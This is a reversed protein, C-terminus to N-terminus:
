FLLFVWVWGERQVAGREVLRLARRLGWGRLRGFSLGGQRTARRWLDAWRAGEVAQRAAVVAAVRKKQEAVGEVAGDRQGRVLGRESQAQGRQRVQRQGWRERQRAREWV